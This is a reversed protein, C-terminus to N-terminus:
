FNALEEWSVVSLDTSNLVVKLNTVTSNFIAKSKIIRLPGAIEIPLIQCSDSGISITESGSYLNDAALKIRAEAVCSEALSKGIQKYYTELVGFRVLFGSFSVSFIIAM